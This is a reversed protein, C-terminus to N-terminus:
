CCVQHLDRRTDCLLNPKTSCDIVAVLVHKDVITTSTCLVCTGRCQNHFYLVCTDVVHVLCWVVAYTQQRQTLAWSSVTAHPMLCLTVHCPSLYAPFSATHLHQLRCCQHPAQKTCCSLSSTLQQCQSRCGLLVANTLWVAPVPTTSPICSTHQLM